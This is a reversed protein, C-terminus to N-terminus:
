RVAADSLLLSIEVLVPEGRFRGASSIPSGDDGPDVGAVDWEIMWDGVLVERVNMSGGDHPPAIVMSTEPIGGADFDYDILVQGGLLANAGTADLDVPYEGEALGPLPSYLAFVAASGTGGAGEEASFEVNEDVFWIAVLHGDGTDDGIGVLMRDVGFETDGLTAKNGRTLFWLCSSLSLAFVAVIVAFVVRKANRM